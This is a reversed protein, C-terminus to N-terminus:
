EPEAFDSRLADMPLDDPEPLEEDPVTGRLLEIARDRGIKYRRYAGLVARAYGPPVAVPQLEETWQLRLEIYDVSTPRQASLRGFTRGDILDLNRIQTCAASWSVRYEAAIVVVAARDDHGDSRLQEWRRIVSAGPMLFHVAFANILRERDERAQGIAFDTSYEDAFLHHGLEHALSFRRRGSDATGNVIAAGLDGLRVYGGDIVSPGLDFSFAFLGVKEVQAQLGHVPGEVPEVLGRANAAADVADEIGDIGIDLRSRVPSRLEGIEHLLEVDRAVSELQDELRNVNEDDSGTRRHSAIAAPAATVFWDVPRGLAEALRVLELVDLQRRGQEIRTLASRHIALRDALVQQTFGAAIRAAAVRSGVEEWSELRRSSVVHGSSSVM